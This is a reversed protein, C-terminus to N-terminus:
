KVTCTKSVYNLSENHLRDFSTVYYTYTKGPELDFDLFENHKCVKILNKASLAAEPKENGELRYIAYSHVKDMPKETAEDKWQLFMAKNKWKLELDKPANPPISDIWPMTPIIAPYQYISQKFKNQFNQHNRQFANARFYISGQSKSNSRALKVQNIIESPAFKRKNSLDLKYLAHGIYLHTSKYTELDWWNLLKNYNAYLNNTSWYLQPAIYDLWGKEVWLKTDCYLNDYSTQGSNTDSGTPDQKKNRWIALPSIGFKVHAKEKKIAKSLDEILLNINDRRWDKINKIGRNYKKFTQADPIKQKKITYPYFYDDLHVGDIDYNKVVEMIVKVLYDRVEPIGPNYYYSEGYHFFWQPKQSTIHNKTVSSFRDHSIARLPNFWAHFEMNHAHCHKLMFDLPDYYPSPPLGQTGTLWESWPSYESKYFADSSARVQVIVANLNNAQFKELLTLYEKQQVASNLGRKSPWDLNTFTTVWAARFERKPFDQEQLSQKLSENLNEIPPPAAVLAHHTLAIVITSFLLSGFSMPYSNPCCIYRKFLNTSKKM